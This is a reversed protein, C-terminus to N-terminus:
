REVSMRELMALLAALSCDVSRNAGRLEDVPSAQSRSFWTGQRHSRESLRCLKPTLGNTEM